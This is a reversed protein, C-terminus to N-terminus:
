NRRSGRKEAWFLAEEEATARRLEGDAVLHLSGEKSELMHQVEAREGERPYITAVIRGIKNMRELVYVKGHRSTAPEVPGEM